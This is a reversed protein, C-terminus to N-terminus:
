PLGLSSRLQLRTASFVTRILPSQLALVGLPFLAAAILLLIERTAPRSRASWLRGLGKADVLKSGIRLRVLFTSAMGGRGKDLFDELSFHTGVAVILSAGRQDAILMAADESTGPVPFVKATLGLKEIRALGPAARGGEAYAHVVLEAGSRLSTDSVSDMDGVIIHPRLGVEALADAGGDVGILVPRVERLYDEIARLDDKFGPGRTVVLVHRGAIKTDIVPASVPDLLLGREESIYQLTNRAFADLEAGINRRAAEMSEGISELTLPTGTAELDGVRIRNGDLTAMQGVHHLAAEFFTDGVFDLIPVHAEALLSPGVNPYRGSISPAGNVVAAVGADILSQAAVADLDTHHILAIDGPALSGVLRKTRRDAWIRGRIPHTNGV